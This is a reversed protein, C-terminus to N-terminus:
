SQIEDVAVEIVHEGHTITCFTDADRRLTFQTADASKEVYHLGDTDNVSLYEIVGETMKTVVYVMHVNAPSDNQHQRIIKAVAMANRIQRDDSCNKGLRIREGCWFEITSPAAIDRELLAFIQEHEKAKNWCSLPDNRLQSKNV